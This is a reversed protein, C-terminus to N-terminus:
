REGRYELILKKVDLDATEDPLFKDPNKIFQRAKEEISRQLRDEVESEEGKGLIRNVLGKLERM